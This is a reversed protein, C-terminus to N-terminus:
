IKKCVYNEMEHFFFIALSGSEISFIADKGDGIEKAEEFNIEIPEDFFDYFVGKTNLSYLM